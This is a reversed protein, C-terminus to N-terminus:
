KGFQHVVRNTVAKPGRARSTPGIFEAGDTRKDTKIDMVRKQFCSPVREKPFVM